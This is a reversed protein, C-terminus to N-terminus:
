SCSYLNQVSIACNIGRSIRVRKLPYGTSHNHFSGTVVFKKDQDCYLQSFFFRDAIGSEAAHCYSLNHM